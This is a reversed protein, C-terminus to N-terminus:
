ASNVKNTSLKKIGLILKLKTQCLMINLMQPFNSFVYKRSVKHVTKGTSNQQQRLINQSTCHEKFFIVLPYKHIWVVADDKKILNSSDLTKKPPLTTLRFSQLHFPAMPNHGISFPFTFFKLNIANLCTQFNLSLSLSLSSLINPKIAPTKKKERAIWFSFKTHKSAIFNCLFIKSYLLHPHLLDTRTYPILYM